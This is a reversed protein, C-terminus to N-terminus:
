AEESDPLDLIDVGDMMDSNKELWDVVDNFETDDDISEFVDTGDPDQGIRMIVIEEADEDDDDHNHHHNCQEGHVHEHKEPENDKLEPKSLVGDKQEGQYILLAYRKDDIDYEDVKEFMHIRGEEDTTEIILGTPQELTPM